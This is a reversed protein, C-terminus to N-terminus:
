RRPEDQIDRVLKKIDEQSANIELSKKWAALAETKRGARYHAMGLLNLIELNLGFRSLYDQYSAVAADYKGLAHSAKGLFYPVQDASKDGAFPGLADLVKQYEGEAFLAHALGVAYRLENPNKAHASLLRELAEPYRGLNLWQVGLEYDYEESRGAPMIKAVILPRRVAALPSVEFNEDATAIDRGDGDVLTIRIKYYDPPFDKLPFAQLFDPTPGYEVIGMTKTLFLEDKRLLDFRLRGKERLGASLGFVQFFVNLDDGRVFTKRAQVLLQGPGTKFPVFDSSGSAGRNVSYSLVIQGFQPSSTGGPIVVTAEASTFARSSTNKMLLDFRYTGPVLPFLDQLALSTAGLDKFQERSLTLPVPKVFQYVTNGKEDSVRGDLEFGVSYAEGTNEVSIRKPELSYHVFDPGGPHRIVSVCADSAIYNASYEVDIVDKYKLLAEAYEDEVKKQPSNFVAAMLRTSMLSVSGPMVYEGPILSLAQRALNPELNQLKKYLTQDREDRGAEGLDEALLARPGDDAPSYLVYDGTGNRKFFIVNFATPLGLAPDGLYFWIETPYVGNTSSYSEINRPAGLVIYVRGRDTRWGPRPTGRGYFENAYALRRYHEEQFENRPTEPTPDRHKWFASIFIDRERDTTLRRFVDREKATIIYVVEEDLWKRYADATKPVGKDQAPLSVLVLGGLVLLRSLKGTKM